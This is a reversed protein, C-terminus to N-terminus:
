SGKNMEVFHEEMFCFQRKEEKQRSAVRTYCTDFNDLLLKVITSDLKNNEAESKLISIVDEKEMGSRYPRDEILATFIDSVAMIRAGLSIDVGYVGFPYGSGDLKEHHYAAWEAIDDFGQISSLSMYTLYTHRRMLAFEDKTLPGKKELISNQISLKGIDHLNGATRIRKIQTESFDLLEALYAASEAVGVSHTATFHTKFDIIQRIFESVELINDISLYKTILDVEKKLSIDVNPLTIDLWFEEHKAAKLFAKIVKPHFHEGEHNKLKETISEEQHLIYSDRDIMIEITDALKLTQAELISPSDISTTMSKWSLHHYKVIDKLPSLWSLLGFLYSGVESHNYIDKKSSGSDVIQEKKEVTLAGIDHLMAATFLSERRSQNLEPIEKSILWAILAVRQQHKALRPTALDLIESFAFLVDTTNTSAKVRM